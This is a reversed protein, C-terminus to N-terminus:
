NVIQRFQFKYLSDDGLQGSIFPINQYYETKIHEITDSYNSELRIMFPFVDEPNIASSYGYTSKLTEISRM